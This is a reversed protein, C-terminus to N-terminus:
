LLHTLPAKMKFDRAEDDVLGYSAYNSQPYLSARVRFQGVAFGNDM